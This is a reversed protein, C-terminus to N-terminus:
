GMHRGTSGEISGTGSLIHTRWGGYDPYIRHNNTRHHTSWFNCRGVDCWCNSQGGWKEHVSSLEHVRSLEVRYDALHKLQM